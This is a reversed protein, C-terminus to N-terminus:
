AGRERAAEADLTALRQLLDRRRAESLGPRRTLWLTCLKDALGTAKAVDEARARVRARIHGEPKRVDVAGERLFMRLLQHAAARAAAAHDADARYVIRVEAGAVDIGSLDEAWGDGSWTVRVVVMRRAPTEVRRWGALRWGDHGRDFDALVYTKAGLEGFDRRWPSGPYIVPVGDVEWEQGQHVHGLAVIDAGALALDELGLEFEAGMLVRAARGDEGTYFPQGVGIRSGRVMAHALLVRPAHHRHLEVRMAALKERLQEAGVAHTVERAPAGGDARVRAQVDERRPWALCAVACPGAATQVLHVGHDEEVFIPHTTRLRALISLEGPADHNGRVIILPAHAALATAFEVVLAREEPTSAREYVDGSHLVLDAGARRIDEVLWAHIRAAEDFRREVDVQTDAIIAVRM